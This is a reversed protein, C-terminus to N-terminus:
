EHSPRTQHTCPAFWVALNRVDKKSLTDPILGSPAALPALLPLADALLSLFRFSRLPLTSLALVTSFFPLGRTREM